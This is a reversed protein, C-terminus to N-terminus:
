FACLALVFSILTELASALEETDVTDVDDDNDDTDDNNDDADGTDDDDTDDVNTDDDSSTTSCLGLGDSVTGFPCNSAEESSDSAEEYPKQGIFNGPPDYRCVLIVQFDFSSSFIDSCEAYGCGLKTSEAWVVQTYHGCVAGCSGDDYTYDEHEDHWNQVGSVLKGINDVDDQSSAAAYLNEGFGSTDHAFICQNAYEKAGEAIEEDWIMEVMNTAGPQSGTNGLATERRLDNHIDLLAQKDEDNLEGGDALTRRFRLPQANQFPIISVIFILL